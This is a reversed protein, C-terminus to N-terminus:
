QRRVSLGIGDILLGGLNQRLRDLDARLCDEIRDALVRWPAQFLEGHILFEACARHAAAELGPADYVEWALIASWPVLVGPGNLQAMRAAVPQRTRGIKYLNPASPNCALYITGQRLSLWSQIGDALAERQLDGVPPEDFALARGQRAAKLARRAIVSPDLAYSM